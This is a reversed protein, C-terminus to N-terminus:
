FDNGNGKLYAEYIKAAEVLKKPDCIERGDTDYTLSAKSILAIDMATKRLQMPAPGNRKPDVQPENAM